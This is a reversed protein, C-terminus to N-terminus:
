VPSADVGATSCASGRRDGRRPPICGGSRCSNRRRDRGSVAAVRRPDTIGEGEDSLGGLPSADVGNHTRRRLDLSRPILQCVTFLGSPRSWGASTRTRRATSCVLRCAAPETGQARPRSPNVRRGLPRHRGNASRPGLRVAAKVGEGPHYGVVCTRLAKGAVAFSERSIGVHYPRPQRAAQGQRHRPHSRPATPITSPTNLRKPGSENM